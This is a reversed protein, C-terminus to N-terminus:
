QAVGTLQTVAAKIAADEDRTCDHWGSLVSFWLWHGPVDRSPKVDRLGLIPLVVKM